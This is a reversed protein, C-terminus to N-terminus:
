GEFSGAFDASRLTKCISISTPSNVVELFADVLFERLSKLGGECGGRARDAEASSHFDAALGWNQALAGGGVFITNPAEGSTTTPEAGTLRM